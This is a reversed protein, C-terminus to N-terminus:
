KERDKREGERREERRERERWIDREWEERGREGERERREGQLSEFSSGARQSFDHMDFAENQHWISDFQDEPSTRM